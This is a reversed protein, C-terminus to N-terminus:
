ALSVSVTKAMNQDHEKTAELTGTFFEVSGNVLMNFEQKTDHFLSFLHEEERKAAGLCSNLKADEDSVSAGIGMEYRVAEFEGLISNLDEESIQITKGSM